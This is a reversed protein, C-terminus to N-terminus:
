AGPERDQGEKKEVVRQAPEGRRENQPRPQTGVGPPTGSGRKLAGGVGQMVAGAVQVLKYRSHAAYQGVVELPRGLPKLYDRWGPTPPKRDDDGNHMRQIVGAAAKPMRQIAPVGHQVAVNAFDHGPATGTKAQIPASPATGEPGFGRPPALVPAAPGSAQAREAPVSKKM